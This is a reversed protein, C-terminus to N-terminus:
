AVQSINWEKVDDVHNCFSASFSESQRLHLHVTKVGPDPRPSSGILCIM